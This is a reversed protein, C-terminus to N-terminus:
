QGRHRRYFVCGKVGGSAVNLYLGNRFLVGRDGFWERSSENAALTVPFLVTGSTDTGDYLDIETSAAPSTNALAWGHLVVAFGFEAKGASSLNFSAYHAPDERVELEFETASV